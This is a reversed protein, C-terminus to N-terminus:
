LVRQSVQSAVLEARLSVRAQVSLLTLDESQEHVLVEVEVHAGVSGLPLLSDSIHEPALTGFHWLHQAGVDRDRYRLADVFDPSLTRHRGDELGGDEDAVHGFPRVNVGELLEEGVELIFHVSLLTGGEAAELDMEVAPQPGLICEGIDLVRWVLERISVKHLM